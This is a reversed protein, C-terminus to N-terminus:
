RGKLASLWLEALRRDLSRPQFSIFGGSPFPTLEGFWLDEGVVYLDVRVHAFDSALVEAVGLARHFLHPAQTIDAARELRRGRIAADMDASIGERDFFGVARSGDGSYQYVRAFEARSAFCFFQLELPRFGASDIYDNSLSARGHKATTPVEM